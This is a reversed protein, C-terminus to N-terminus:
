FNVEEIRRGFIPIEEIKVDELIEPLKGKNTLEFFIRDLNKSNFSALILNLYKTFGEQDQVHKAEALTFILPLFKKLNEFIEKKSSLYEQAFYNEKKLLFFLNESAQAKGIKLIPLNLILDSKFVEESIEFNGKKVFNGQSLDFPIVKERQCVELLGSKAAKAGIEIEDFSQSCVKINQPEVGNQLLYRITAELFEPSTNERFYPHSVSVLAPLILVKARPDIKFNFIEFVNEIAELFDYKLRLIAVGEKNDAKEIRFEQGIKYEQFSKQIWRNKNEDELVLIFYPTKRHFFSPIQVKAVGIVKIKRSKVRELNLFCDPCKGIPYAWTKKCKPCQFFVM